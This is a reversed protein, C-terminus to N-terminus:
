RDSDKRPFLLNYNHVVREMRQLILDRLAAPEIVVAEDGYGMVWWSIEEIGDVEVEFLLAGDNLRRTTQSKHWLVEEVNTAVKPSFQIVVHHRSSGRIMQWANGLYESLSFPSKLEYVTDLLELRDIRELKFTRVQRHKESHGIVYWARKIFALHYPRLVLTMAEKEDPSEYALRVKRHSAIAQKLHEFDGNLSETSSVPPPCFDIHELLTGCQQQLEMPLASEIKVAARTAAKFDPIMSEHLVKQTLYMLGLCEEVTLSVPPVFYERSLQYRKKRRDFNFRAGVRQLLNLDRFVTRRAVSLDHSLDEVSMSRGAHLLTILRLLREVHNTKM